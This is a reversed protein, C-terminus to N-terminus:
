MADVDLQLLVYRYNEQQRLHNQTQELIERLANSSASVEIKLIIKRLYVNQIKGVVPKEPGLVRDGLRERLLNAYEHAASHVIEEKRHKLQISILRFFPPYHFLAREETQLTYMGTYDHNLVTQILPHEPHSTQLIVEGQKKRRGARGAVQSLLQYAREHARFDPFNMLSDANLIGVLSVNDFDLGKSILQTGILIRAEGSAFRSLIEETSKQTKANDTDLRAVAIDPFLARIEEEVKETGYGLSKLENHGCEPCVPPLPYNRGCYHCTLQRTQKHHTLSIDCYRCKPTWDCTPCVLSLAFGRRNQFLLIQEGQALVAQMREILLPSFISKMQKKRRLEKVDVPIVLPLETTEFRKNLAVYGYKGNQANYFSEISPTASGLVTKAGHMKALVLAANRAHYRPAPDQQKYSTEHEEDVIILGLNNFPLFISSRVGLILPYSGDSLMRNWIRIREKDSIKSHFVCLQEGFFRRLRETLQSTLAIEPLLYLVQKGSQIVPQILHTYIETKGSSTVGHLLCVDKTKWQEIIQNHAQQQLDNLVHLAEITAGSSESKSRRPRKVPKEKSRIVAPLVNRSVEGLKCLYYRAIWEWFPIQSARIIPESSIIESVPKINEINEPAENRIAAVLGSYHKNKGFGVDVVSGVAIQNEMEPPVQYTFRDALPVPLIIEVFM